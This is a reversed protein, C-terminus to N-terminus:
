DPKFRFFPNKLRKIKLFLFSDIKQQIIASDKIEILCDKIANMADQIKVPYKSRNDLYVNVTNFCQLTEKSTPM